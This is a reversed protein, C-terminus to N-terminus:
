LCALLQFREATPSGPVPHYVCLLEKTEPLIMKEYNLELLGVLPYDLRTPGSTRM